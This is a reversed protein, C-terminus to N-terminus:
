QLMSDLSEGLIEEIMRIWSRTEKEVRDHDDELLEAIFPLMEPLLVLWDEGLENTLSQQCKVAVLKISTSDAGMLKLLRANVAKFHDASTSALALMTIAPIVHSEAIGDAQDELQFLLPEAVSNFHAPSQWFDDEDYEFCQSLVNLMVRLLISDHDDQGRQSLVASLPELVYSIYGTVLAKLRFILARLFQFLTISKLTVELQDQSTATTQEVLRIFFPRLIADNIKLVMSLAVDMSSTELEEAQATNIQVSDPRCYSLMRLEFAKSILNFLPQANKIIEAKSHAEISLKVLKLYYSLPMFGQSTRIKDFNRDLASFIEVGDIKRALKHYFKDQLEFETSSSSSISEQVLQLATDLYEGSMIFPLNECIEVLLHLCATSVPSNSSAKKAHHSFKEYCRGLVQPILPIMEEKLIRSMSALTELSIIQVRENKNTLGHALVTEAAALVKAGDKKGFRFSINNICSIMSYLLSEQTGESVLNTLHAMFSLLASVASSDNSKITKGQTGISSIVVEQIKIQNNTWSIKPIYL